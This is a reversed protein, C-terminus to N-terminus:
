FVVKRDRRLARHSRKVHCQQGQALALRRSLADRMSLRAEAPGSGFRYLLVIATQHEAMYGLDATMGIVRSNLSSVGLPDCCLILVVPSLLNQCYKWTPWKVSSVRKGAIQWNKNDACNEWSSLLCLRSCQASNESTQSYKSLHFNSRLSAVFRVCPHANTTASKWTMIQANAPLEIFRQRSVNQM